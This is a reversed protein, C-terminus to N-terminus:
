EVSYAENPSASEGKAPEKEREIEARVQDIFDQEVHLIKMILTDEFGEHIMERATHFLTKEIGIAEGKEISEQMMRDYTSMIKPSLSPSLANISELIMSAELQSNKLLYALISRIFHEDFIPLEVQLFLLQPNDILYQPDWIYKFMLLVNILLGKKLELIQEQSLEEVNTLLYDFEPVFRLFSDPLNKSFYASLPRKNWKKDGHYVVIPIIPTLKRNKKKEKLQESWVELIYRLLQLHIFPDPGSKHELIFPVWVQEKGIQLPSKYVVDSFFEQLEPTVFSGNVRELKELNLEKRVDEPLFQDLYDRAIDLRGFSAKFFEDHSKHPHEAM